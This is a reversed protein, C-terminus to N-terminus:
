PVGKWTAARPDGDCLGLMLRRRNDLASWNGPHDIYERVAALRAKVEDAESQLADLRAQMLDEVTQRHPWEIIPKEWMDAPVEFTHLGGRHSSQWWFTWFASLRMAAVQDENGSWGGTVLRVEVHGGEPSGSAFDPGEAFTVEGYPFFTESLARTLAAPTGTWSTISELWDDTPYGADDTAAGTFRISM